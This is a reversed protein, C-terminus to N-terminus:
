RHELRIPIAKSAPTGSGKAQHDLAVLV